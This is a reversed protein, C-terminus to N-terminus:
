SAPTDRSRAVSIKPRNVSDRRTFSVVARTSTMGGESLEVWHGYIDRPDQYAVTRYKEHTEADPDTLYDEDTEAYTPDTLYTSVTTGTVAAPTATGPTATYALLNRTLDVNRFGSIGDDDLLPQYFAPTSSDPVTGWGLKYGGAVDGNSGTFDIATMDKYAVQAADDKKSQAFVAYPNFHAVDMKKSGFYAPARYVRNGDESKDVRGDTRRIATPM